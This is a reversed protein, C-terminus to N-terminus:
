SQKRRRLYRQLKMTQELLPLHALDKPRRVISKSRHIRELPLVAVRRDMWQLVQAQRCETKFLNLGTVEYVFNITLDGPLVAVTNAVMQAGLKLALNMVRMYQRPLLDIWLDVDFTTVPVGQLVAATM